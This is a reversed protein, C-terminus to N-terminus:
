LIFIPGNEVSIHAFVDLFGIAKPDFPPPAGKYPTGGKISFKRYINFYEDYPCWQSLYSRYFLPQEVDEKTLYWSHIDAWNTIKGLINDSMAM